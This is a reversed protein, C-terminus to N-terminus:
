ASQETQGGPPRRKRLFGSHNPAHGVFVRGHPAGVPPLRDIRLHLRKLWAPSSRTFDVLAELRTLVEESLVHELRHVERDAAGPPMDLIEVLLTTLCEDRRLVARGVTKGQDTLALAGRSNRRVFGKKVLSSVAKTVSPPKIGLKAALDKPRVPGKQSFRYIWELYNEESPSTLTGNM